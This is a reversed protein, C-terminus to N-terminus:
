GGKAVPTRQGVARRAEQTEEQGEEIRSGGDNNQAWWPGDCSMLNNFHLLLSESMVHLPVTPLVRRHRRLRYCGGGLPMGRIVRTSHNLVCETSIFASPRLSQSASHCVFGLSLTIPEARDTACANPGSLVQCVSNLRSTRAVYCSWDDWSATLAGFLHEDTVICSTWDSSREM